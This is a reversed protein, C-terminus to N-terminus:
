AIYYKDQLFPVTCSRKSAQKSAQKSSFVRGFMVKCGRETNIELFPCVEGM